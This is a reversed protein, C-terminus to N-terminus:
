KVPKIGTIQRITPFLFTKDINETTSLIVCPACNGEKIRKEIYAAGETVDSKSYIQKPFSIETIAIDATPKGNSDEGVDRRLGIGMTIIRDDPEIDYTRKDPLDDDFVLKYFEDTEEVRVSKPVTM